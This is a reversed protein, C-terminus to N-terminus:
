PNSNWQYFQKAMSNFWPSKLYQWAYTNKPKLYLLTHTNSLSYTIFLILHLFFLVKVILSRKTRHLNFELHLIFALPFLNGYSFHFGPTQNQLLFYNLFHNETNPLMRFINNGVFVECKRLKWVFKIVFFKM